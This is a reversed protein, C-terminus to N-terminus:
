KGIVSDRVDSFDLTVRRGAGVTVTQGDEPDPMVDIRLVKRELEILTKLADALLKVNKIQQPLGIAAFYLDNLKDAGNEDPAAMLEGLRRLEETKELESNVLEWLKQVTARAQRIDARQNIVREAIMQASANIQEKETEKLSNRVENRVEEKRVLAEAKAQIKASLDREWAEAKAKKRIAGETCGFENAIDRLSRFGARYEREVAEWDVAPRKKKTDKQEEEM